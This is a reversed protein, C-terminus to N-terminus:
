SKKPREGRYVTTIRTPLDTVMLVRGDPYEKVRYYDKFDFFRIEQAKEVLRQFENPDIKTTM